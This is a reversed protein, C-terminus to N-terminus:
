DELGRICINTFSYNLYKNFMNFDEHRWCKNKCSKNVCYTVDTIAIRKGVKEGDKM